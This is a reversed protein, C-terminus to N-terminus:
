QEDTIKNPFPAAYSWPEFDEYHAMSNEFEIREQELLEPDVQVHIVNDRWAAQLFVLEEYSVSEPEYGNFYGALGRLINYVAANIERNGYDFHDKYGIIVAIGAPNSEFEIEITRDGTRHSFRIASIKMDGTTKSSTM